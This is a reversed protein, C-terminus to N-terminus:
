SRFWQVRRGTGRFKGAAWEAFFSAAYLQGCCIDRRRELLMVFRAMCASQYRGCGERKGNLSSIGLQEVLRGRSGRMEFASDMGMDMCRLGAPMWRDIKSECYPGRSRNIGRQSKRRASAAM